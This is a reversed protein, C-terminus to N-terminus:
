KVLAGIRLQQLLMENQHIHIDSMEIRVQVNRM